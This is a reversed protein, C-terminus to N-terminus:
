KRRQLRGEAGRLRVHLVGVKAPAPAFSRNYGRIDQRKHPMGKVKGTTEGGRGPSDSDGQDQGGPYGHEPAIRLAEEANELSEVWHEILSWERAVVMDVQAEWHRWSDTQDPSNRAAYSDEM